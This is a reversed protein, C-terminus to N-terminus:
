GDVGGGHHRQVVEEGDARLDLDLPGSLGPGDSRAVGDLTRYEQQLVAVQDLDVGGLFRLLQFSLYGLDDVQPLHKEGVALEHLVVM